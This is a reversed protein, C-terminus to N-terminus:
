LLVQSTTKSSCFLLLTTDIYQIRKKNNKKQKTKGRVETKKKKLKIKNKFKVFEGGIQAAVYCIEMHQVTSEQQNDVNFITTHM